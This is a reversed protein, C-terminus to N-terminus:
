RATSLSHLAIPRLELEEVGKAGILDGFSDQVATFRNQRSTRVEKRDIARISTHLPRFDVLAYGLYKDLLNLTIWALDQGQFAGVVQEALEQLQTNRRLDSM